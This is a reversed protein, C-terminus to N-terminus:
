GLAAWDGPRGFSSLFSSPRGTFTMTLKRRARSTAVYFLNREEQQHGDFSGANVDPIVVHDFELGKAAPISYLRLIQGGKARGRRVDADRNAMQELWTGFTKLEAASRSFALMSAMAEDVQEDFVFSRRAMNIFGSNQVLRALDLPELGQMQALFRRLIGLAESDSFNIIPASDGTDARAIFSQIDGLFETNFAGLDKFRARKFRKDSMCGTFEAMTRQIRSLEAHALTRINDTAWAVLVRLFLIEPRLAFPEFGYPETAYGRMALASELQVAAGPHRLIVALSPAKSGSKTAASRFAGDILAAVAQVDAVQLIEIRTDTGPATSYRKGAHQALPLALAGGFRWCTELTLEKARGIDRVFTEQMFTKDAGGDSHVVQDIDGVVFVQGVQNCEILHHLVTFMARNIDHGEDVLLLEIGLKLPHDEAIYIPDNATLVCAMDYFPDDELRFKPGISDRYESREIGGERTSESSEAARLREYCRLVALETYEAGLDGASGPTLIFANDIVQASMTGKIRRITHLLNPVLLSGDGHIAFADLHGRAEAHRRAAGIAQLVTSYVERNPKDLYETKGELLTLQAQCLESFTHVRVQRIINKPAGIWSLREQFAQVAASSYTLVQIASPPVGRSLATLAKLALTTTKASGANGYILNLRDRSTLIAAQETNPTIPTSM